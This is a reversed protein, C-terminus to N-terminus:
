ARPFSPLGSSRNGNGTAASSGGGAGTESGGSGAAGGGGGGSRSAFRPTHQQQQKLPRTGAAPTRVKPVSAPAGTQGSADDLMAEADLRRGREHGLKQTTAALKIEQAELTRKLRKAQEGLKNARAAEREFDDNAADMEQLEVTVKNLQFRAAAGDHECQLKDARLKSSEKESNVVREAMELLRAKQMGEVQKSEKLARDLRGREAQVAGLTEQLKEKGAQTEALKKATAEATKTLTAVTSLSAQHLTALADADVVAKAVQTQLVGVHESAQATQTADLSAVAAAVSRFREACAAETEKSAESLEAIELTTLQASLLARTACLQEEAVDKSNALANVLIPLPLPLTPAPQLAATGSSSFSSSSAAAFSSRRQQQEQEQQKELARALDTACSTRDKVAEDLMRQTSECRGKWTEVAGEATVALSSLTQMSAKVLKIEELLGGVKEDVVDAQKRLAEHAATKEAMAAELQVDM